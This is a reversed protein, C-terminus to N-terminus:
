YNNNYPILSIAPVKVKHFGLSGTMFFILSDRTEAIRADITKNLEQWTTPPMNLAPTHTPIKITTSIIATITKM